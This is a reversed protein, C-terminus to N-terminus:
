LYVSVGTGQLSISLNQDVQDDIEPFFFIIALDVSIKTLDESRPQHHHFSFVVTSSLNAVWVVSEQSNNITHASHKIM